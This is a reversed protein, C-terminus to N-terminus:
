FAYPGCDSIHDNPQMSYSISVPTSAKGEHTIMIM